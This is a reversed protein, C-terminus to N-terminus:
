FHFFFILLDHGVDMLLHNIKEKERKRLDLHLHLVGKALVLIVFINNVIIIILFHIFNCSKILKLTLLTPQNEMMLDNVHILLILKLQWGIFFMRLDIGRRDFM